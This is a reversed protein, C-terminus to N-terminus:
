LATSHEIFETSKKRGRSERLIVARYWIELVLLKYLIPLHKRMEKLFNIVTSQDVIGMEALYGSQLLHQHKEIVAVTWETVPPQFGQKKRSILADPVIGKLASKLWSKPGLKHDPYSKRLGIVIEILKHDLLPTRSEVSCAMSVRDQLSLCNSVLWTDFILKCIRVPIDTIGLLDFEFLDYPDRDSILASFNKTYLARVENSASIFNPNMDYSVAQRPYDLSLLNNGAAISLLNKVAVPVRSHWILKKYIPHSALKEPLWGGAGSSSAATRLIHQKRETLLASQACWPYGWFLEDGGLGNLMVKIGHGAALKNVAYHGYAAIDAIPDDIIAVMDPFFDVFDKTRLETEFWPVKLSRALERAEDREDYHGCQQYGVTFACLTNKYKDAALCALAGSDIGGSLAIGVPADSRLTLPIIECLEKKILEVPDGTVPVISEMDWYPKVSIAWNKCDILLYHAAPLKRIGVLPTRPEPVYQYHLYLDIAIPDLAPKYPLFPLLAKLESAFCFLDGDHWYYLPKEGTRDRALLLEKTKTDYVASAFMGRLKHLCGMGWEAFAALLVETDTKSIFRHKLDELEKRLELYNYIAGNFVICYRGNQYTMPQHGLASLDLIALRTCGLLIHEDQWIGSDDPGRHRILKLPGDINKQGAVTRSFIGIIGCM